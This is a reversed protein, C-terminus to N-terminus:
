SRAVPAEGEELNGELTGELPIERGRKEIRRTLPTEPELPVVDLPIDLARELRGALKWIDWGEVGGIAVDLDRTEGPETQGRGFLILREAGHRRSIERATEIHQKTVPMKTVADPQSGRNYFLAKELCISEAPVPETSSRGVHLAM